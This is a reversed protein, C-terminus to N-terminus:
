RNVYGRNFAGITGSLPNISGYTPMKGSTLSVQGQSVNSRIQRGASQLGNETQRKATLVKQLFNQKANPQM